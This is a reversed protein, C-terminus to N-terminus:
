NYSGEAFRGNPPFPQQKEECQLVETFGAMPHALGEIGNHCPIPFQIDVAPCVGISIFM